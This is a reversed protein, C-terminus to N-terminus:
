EVLTSAMPVLDTNNSWNGGADQAWLAFDYRKGSEGTYDASTQSTERWAMWEGGDVRVWVLYKALAGDDTAGWSLSFTRPSREPLPNIFPIPPTNDQEPALTPRLTPLPTAVPPLPTNTVFSAPPASLGGTVREVVIVPEGGVASIDGFELKAVNDPLAARLPIVYDGEANPTILRNGSLTYLQAQTGEAPLRADQPQFARNWLVSIREQTLPREFQILTLEDRRIVEATAGREFAQRGFVEALLRFALAAPRATGAQPHQSYCVSARENRFVGFADGFCVGGRGCLEGRHPAFNGGADGCDDYLQHWLIVDAGWEWAYVYSQILFWAQQEATVRDNRLGDTGTAWVPGPYDDWVRVGTENVWVAKRLGYARLTERVYHTLWGTRWPYIYSHLAVIDMYYNFTAAYPDNEYIALVQSLWNVDTAFLLGGFMVQADPDALKAALYAIKLMRAYDRISGQFFVQYDPENWIEWVRIGQSPRLRASQAFLGNPKYRQVAQYVFLAWPNNPNIQKGAELYDSGDSFIPENLNIPATGTSLFDPKGLLVANINLGRSLDASVLADYASWDWTSENPHVRQWYLPWRTWGAGLELANRYRLDNIPAEASNIFTFGM